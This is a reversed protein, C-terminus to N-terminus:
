RAGTGIRVSATMNWRLRPDERDLAITVRYTIDGLRNEGFARIRTIKGTLTLGPIGDFTVTAEDGEKISVIDLETLDETEIQWKSADALRAVPVNPAVQEGEGAEIAGVTGAFPARLLRDDMGLRAQELLATAQDVRARAAALDEDAAGKRLKDLDAEALKLRAQAAGRASEAERVQARAAAIEEERGGRRTKQLELEAIRVEEESQQVLAKANDCEAQAVIKKDAQGCISDRRAQAGWLANKAREVRHEAIAVDDPAGGEVNALAARASSTRADAAAVEARAVEVAAEGAAITEADAGKHVKALQAQAGALDAEAQLVMAAQRASDLRVLIQGPKVVAGEEVAIETVTGGTAFSLAASRAPVVRADALVGGEAMVAPIATAAGPGVGPDAPDAGGAGFRRVAVYGGGVLLAIGILGIIAPRLKNM